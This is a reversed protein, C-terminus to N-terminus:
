LCYVFVGPGHLVGDDGSTPHVLGLTVSLVCGNVCDCKCIIDGKTASRIIQAAAAKLPKLYSTM